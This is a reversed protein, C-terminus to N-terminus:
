VLLCLVALTKASNLTKLWILLAEEFKINIENMMKNLYDLATKAKM